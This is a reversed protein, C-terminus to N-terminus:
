RKRVKVVPKSYLRILRGTDGVEYDFEILKIVANLEKKTWTDKTSIATTLCDWAATYRLEATKAQIDQETAREEILDVLEKLPQNIM